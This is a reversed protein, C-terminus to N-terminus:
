KPADELQTLNHLIPTEDDTQARRAREIQEKLASATQNYGYKRCLMLLRQRKRMKRNM